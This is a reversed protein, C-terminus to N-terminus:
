LDGWTQQIFALTKLDLGMKFGRKPIAAGLFLSLNSQPEMRQM